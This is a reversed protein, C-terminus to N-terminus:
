HVSDASAVELLQDYESRNKLVEIAKQIDLDEEFSAEIRGKNGHFRSVIEKKLESRILTLNKGFDNKKELRAKESLASLQTLFEQQYENKKAIEQLKTLQREAASVYEIGKKESFDKFDALIDDTIDFDPPISKNRSAYDTAYGFFVSKKFLEIVYLNTIKDSKVVIDPNIGGDGFVPRGGYTKFERSEKKMVASSGSELNGDPNEEEAEEFHAVPDKKFRGEAYDEKQICRGSPIYYKATTIKIAADQEALPFVTQVLGKGFTTRGIILGRDLDQIAGGVIESASASGEDVLVVLPIHPLAPDFQARYQRNASEMRGSTYVILHGKKVFQNCVKVAEDLLGGPNGRLDLIMGDLEQANMEKVAKKLEFGANKSFRVLKVYGIGPEVLGAYTINELKIDAREIAFEIEQEEGIRNITLSVKEGPPGKVRKSVDSTSMGETSEGDVAIIRDGALIGIKEAPSGEIPSIVTVYGDRLGVMIGIGAYKGTTLAEIEDDEDEEYYVTYPDLQDLMGEIGSRIFDHPAIEDVYKVTVQKYIDGLLRLGRKIEYYYDGDPLVASRTVWGVLLSAFILVVALQYIRFFGRFRSSKFDMWNKMSFRLRRLEQFRELVSEWQWPLSGPM